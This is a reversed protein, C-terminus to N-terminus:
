SPLKAGSSSLQQHTVGAMWSKLWVCVRPYTAVLPQRCKLWAHYPQQLGDSLFANRVISSTYRRLAMAFCLLLLINYKSMCMYWTIAAQNCVKHIVRPLPLQRHRAQQVMISMGRCCECVLQSGQLPAKPNINVHISKLFHQDSSIIQRWSSCVYEVEVFACRSEILLLNVLM